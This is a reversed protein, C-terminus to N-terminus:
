RTPNLTRARLCSLFLSRGSALIKVVHILFLRATHALGRVKALAHGRITRPQESFGEREPDTELM